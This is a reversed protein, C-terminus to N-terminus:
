NLRGSNDTVSCKAPPWSLTTKTTILVIKKAIYLYFYETNEIVKFKVLNWTIKLLVDSNAQNPNITARKNNNCKSFLLLFDLFIYLRCIGGKSNKLFIFWNFSQTLLVNTLNDQTVEVHSTSPLTAM